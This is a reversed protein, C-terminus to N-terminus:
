RHFCPIFKKSSTGATTQKCPSAEKALASAEEIQARLKENEKELSEIKEEHFKIEAERLQSHLLMAENEKSGAYLVSDSNRRTRRIPM